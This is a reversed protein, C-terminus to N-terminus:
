LARGFLKYERTPLAIREFLPRVTDVALAVTITEFGDEVAFRIGNELLAFQGGRRQASPLVALTHLLLRPPAPGGLWSGWGSADGQLERVAEVHDPLMFACGVDRNTKRDVVVGINRECLLALVGGFFEGFEELDFPTFGIHGSWVEDLLPHIRKLTAELDTTKLLEIRLSRSARQLVRELGFTEPLAAITEIPLDFSTWRAIAGFGHTQFLTPYYAPNRPESLFPALHFGSTMFRHLRHVGGNMPGWVTRAGRDKLWSFAIEFLAGAVDPDDISEFYGIQGVPAENTDTLRPNVIAALRGVIEGGRTALFPQIQGYKGFAGTGSLEVRIPQDLPPVWLPDAAHLTWPFEIFPDLEDPTLPQIKM